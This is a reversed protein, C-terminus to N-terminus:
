VEENTTPMASFNIEIKNKLYFLPNIKTQPIIEELTKGISTFCNNFTNAIIIPEDITQGNHNIQSM